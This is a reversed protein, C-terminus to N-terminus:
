LAFSYSLMKKFTKKRMVNSIRELFFSSFDVRVELIGDELLDTCHVANHATDTGFRARLSKPRLVKGLSPDRPGCLSRFEQVVNDCNKRIELAICSGSCLDNSMDQM